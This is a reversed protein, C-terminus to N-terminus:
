DPRNVRSLALNVAFEAGTGITSAERPSTIAHASGLSHEGSIDEFCVRFMGKPGPVVFAFSKMPDLAILKGNNFLWTGHIEVRVIGTELIEDLYECYPSRKMELGISEAQELVPEIERFRAGFQGIVKRPDVGRDLSIQSEGFRWRRSRKRKDNLEDIYAPLSAVFHALEGRNPVDVEGGRVELHADGTILDLM